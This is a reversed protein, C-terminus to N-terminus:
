LQKTLSALQSKKRSAKRKHLIGKNVSSDITISFQKLEALAKTKDKQQAYTRLNKELTNLQSRINKNIQNRRMTQRISKKTASHNAM